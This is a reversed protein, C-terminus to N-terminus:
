EYIYVSTAGDKAKVEQLYVGHMSVTSSTTAPDTLPFSWSIDSNHSLCVLSIYNLSHGSIYGVYLLVSLGYILQKINGKSTKHLTHNSFRLFFSHSNMKVHVAHQQM